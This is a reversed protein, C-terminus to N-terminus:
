LKNDSCHAVLFMGIVLFIIVAMYGVIWSVWNDHWMEDKLNTKCRKFLWIFFGGIRPVILITM